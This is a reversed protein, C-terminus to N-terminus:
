RYSRAKKAIKIKARYMEKQQLNKVYLVQTHCISYEKTKKNPKKNMETQEKKCGLM